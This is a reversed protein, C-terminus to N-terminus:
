RMSYRKKVFFIIEALLFIFYPLGLIYNMGLMWYSFSFFDKSLKKQENWFFIDEIKFVFISSVFFLMLFSVLLLYFFHWLSEKSWFLIISIAVLGSVLLTIVFYKVLILNDINILEFKVVALYLMIYIVIASLYIYLITRQFFVM